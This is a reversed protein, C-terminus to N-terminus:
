RNVYLRILGISHLDLFICSAYGRVCLLFM